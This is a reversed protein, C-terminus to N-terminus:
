AGTEEYIGSVDVTRRDVGLGLNSTPSSQVAILSLCGILATGIAEGLLPPVANGVQTYRPCDHRRSAGGTTYKGKFRFWDPFSQIRACERVTLIRPDQYHLIDDPLTTLTPAPKAPDMPVTRHKLMGLEERLKASLNVGRPCTSLIQEFRREVDRRHRALRMSDMESPAVGSSMIVQYPTTPGQYRVKRFGARQVSGVYAETNKVKASGVALDSIASSVNVHSGQGYWSLQRRGARRIEDFVRKVVEAPTSNTSRALQSAVGSRIGVAILRARRQPVGFDAADLVFEAVEYGSVFLRDRLKQYYTQRSKGRGHKHAVNIGPVNELVLFKPQLLEVFDVYRQTLQNRPDKGNRKGAFSFGQCPPGGAVLDVEDKMQSLRNAHLNLVDDISHARQELWGPWEFAHRAGKVLFNERFTEFADTAHEIAFKGSWGAQCLGLSLGGCGAFLDIFSPSAHAVEIDM